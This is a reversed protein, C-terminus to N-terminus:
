AGSYFAYAHLYVYVLHNISRIKKFMGVLFFVICVVVKILSVFIILACTSKSVYKCLWDVMLCVKAHLNMRSGYIYQM